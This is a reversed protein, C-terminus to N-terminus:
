MAAAIHASPGGTRAASGSSPGTRELTGEARSREPTRRRARPLTRGPRPPNRFIAPPSFDALRITLHLEPMGTQKKHGTVSYWSVESVLHQRVALM